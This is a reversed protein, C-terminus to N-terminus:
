IGSPLEHFQSGHVNFKNLIGLVVAKRWEMCVSWNSM